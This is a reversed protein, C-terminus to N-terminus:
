GPRELLSVLRTATSALAPYLILGGHKDIRAALQGIWPAVYEAAFKTRADRCVAVRGRWGRRGAYEEKVALVGLFELEVSVHDALEHAGPAVQFGFAEYFSAVEGVSRTTRLGDKPEYASANPPCPVTRAFLRTHEGQLGVYGVRAAEVALAGPTGSDLPIGCAGASKLVAEGFGGRALDAHLDPAPYAFGRALLAALDGAAALNIGTASTM